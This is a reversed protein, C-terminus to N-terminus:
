CAISHNVWGVGSCALQEFERGRMAGVLVTLWGRRSHYRRRQLRRAAPQMGPQPAAGGIKNIDDRTPLKVGM